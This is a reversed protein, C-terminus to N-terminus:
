RWSPENRRMWEILEEGEAPARGPGTLLDVAVQAPSAVTLGDLVTRTREMLVAFRPRVLLVNAGAETERLGWEAAARRPDRVYVMASRAPAYENWAGAAVSGTVAYEGGEDGRLTDVLDSVGRPAIWRTVANSGLLQYDDSWRRLLAAWDPVQVRRDRHRVVLGQEELLEVVRYVSGVSAGSVEALERVRWPGAVDVLARVVRASPEGNLTGRPRGPGRWPDSDAGRDSVFFAPSSSWLRMNQTADVYGIGADVLRARDTPSLYRTVVLAGATPMREELMARRDRVAQIDRAVMSTKAIVGFERVNGDPATVAMLADIGAGAPFPRDVLVNWQAPLRSRVAEAAADVLEAM